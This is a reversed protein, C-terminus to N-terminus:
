RLNTPCSLSKEGGILVLEITWFFGIFRCLSEINKVSHKGLYKSGFTLKKKVQEYVNSDICIEGAKALNEIRAAINVGDRYIREGEEIVDGLNIGIRFEM